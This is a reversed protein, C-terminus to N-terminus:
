KTKVKKQDVIYTTYERIKKSFLEVEKTDQELIGVLRRHQVNAIEDMINKPTENNVEIAEWFLDKELSKFHGGLSDAIRYLFEVGEYPTPQIVLKVNRQNDLKELTKVKRQLAENDIFLTIVFKRLPDGFFSIDM